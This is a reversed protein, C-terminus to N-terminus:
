RHKWGSVCQCVAQVQDLESELAVKTGLNAATVDVTLQPLVATSSTQSEARPPVPPPPAEGLSDTDGSGFIAEEYSPLALSESKPPAAMSHGASFDPSMNEYSASESHHEHSPPPPPIPPVTMLESTVSTNEIASEYSPPPEEPESKQKRPSSRRPTRMEDDSEYFSDKRQLTSGRSSSKRDTDSSSSDWSATSLNGPAVTTTTGDPLTEEGSYNNAGLSAQLNNALESVLASSIPTPDSLPTQAGFMAFQPTFGLFWHFCFLFLCFCNLRFILGFCFVFLFAHVICCSM